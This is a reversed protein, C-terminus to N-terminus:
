FNYGVSFTVRNEHFKFDSESYMNLMGIGGNIGFYFHQYSIGAGINWILDARHLGGDEGYMSGSMELNASTIYQKATFGIELEPGTFIYAKIDKTFDFHYGAMVPIRMGFKKITMGDFIIDDEIAPIFDDNLSYTDYYLKLGPEIYLNAVIPLNYIGGFEIGGGNNYCDIGINDASVNGPCTVDAGVRIGFYAKNDPNNLIPNQAIAAVGAMAALALTVILKKM